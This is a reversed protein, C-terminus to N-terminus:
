AAPTKLQGRVGGQFGQGFVTSSTVVALFAGILAARIRM